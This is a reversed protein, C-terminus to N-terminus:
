FLLGSISTVHEGSIISQWGMSRRGSIFIALDLGLTTIDQILVFLM